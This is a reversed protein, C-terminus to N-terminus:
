TKATSISFVDALHPLPTQWLWDVQLRFGDLVRSHFFGDPDVPAPHYVNDAGLVQFEAQARIPDITWYEPIGAQQYERFKEVKDKSRYDPSIVEIVLDAPGDVYLNRFRAEHEKRIFLIDPERGSSELKMQVPAFLVTGLNRPEVFACLLRSLFQILLQHRISPPPTIFAEGNVWEAIQSEPTWALFEEYTMM